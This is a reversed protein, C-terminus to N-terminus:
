RKYIDRYDCGFIIRFENAPLNIKMESKDDKSILRVYHKQSNELDNGDVSIDSIYIHKLLIELKDLERQITGIEKNFSEKKKSNLKIQISELAEIGNM